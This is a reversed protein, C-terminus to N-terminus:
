QRRMDMYYRSGDRNVGQCDTQGNSAKTCEIRPASYSGGGACPVSQNGEVSLKGGNMRGQVPGSCVTGDPKRLTLQGQGEKSFKLSMDLPQQTGKDVLGEGAKWDGQLFDLKNAAKPDDPLKLAKPDAPPKSPDNRNKSPDAKPDKLPDKPPDTKPDKSPDKLPDKPPDTKPDKLPDKLPDKAPDKLPDVPPDTKPDPGKAPDVLDIGGPVSAAPGPPLGLGPMSAGPLAPDVTGPVGPAAGPATGPATGPALPVTPDRGTQPESAPAEAQPTQGPTVGPLGPVDAGCGRLLGLLLLLLLLALLAMLLWWWWPRKRPAPAAAAAAVVPPVAAALPAAPALAPAAVLPAALPDIAGGAPNEFGWFAIVPQDGAMFLFQGDSPVKMAQDLLSAFAVAGGPQGDGKARLEGAFAILRGRVEEMDLAHLAQEDASLTHWGRVAGAVPVTWRIVGTDPDYTPVAFYNAYREGLRQRLMARLQVHSQWAPKGFAGFSRYRDVRDEAIQTGTTQPNM